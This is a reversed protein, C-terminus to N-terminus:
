FMANSHPLEAPIPQMVDWHEAIKGNELRFLDYFAYPQGAFSGGSQTLVFNGEGVVRHLKTYVMTIGQKGMEEIAKLLGSLGDPIGPNHQIYTDGDFYNSMQNYQGAILIQEIFQKATAKNAETKNLDMIETAGDFKTRGSATKEVADQIGDWHEVILGDALRFLDFIAQQKTGWDYESHLLVYDGDAIVRNVNVKPPQPLSGLIEMSKLLGQRGDGAMSSHQIYNAHVLRNVTAVDGQGFAKALLEIVIEKNSM